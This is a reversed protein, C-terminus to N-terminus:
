KALWTVLPLYAQRQQTTAADRVLRVFNASRQADGQPGLGYATGGSCASGIISRGSATKPDSRQAGAGHVDYLTYCSAGPTAKQWGGARGFALYVAAAGAGNSAAHTTSTWYWPWDPQGGENTIATATFLPDIAASASTEPSRTYDLISQLEKVDPLRWDNHGLTNAANQAQVWALATEWNMAAGSDAQSWMLGTAEDTITGDGNAAFQNAGYSPNGRVCLVFFTKDAGNLKLGYGKIRGDAFNVGFLKQEQATSVYLTSSAYQADIIREGASTDGYAFDFTSRDIFPTLGATSSGSLGSPDVGRFDILSYLQKITPLQWDSYGALTLEQCYALAQTYTLKDAADINGDGDTNPSRQWTLGTNLDSVTGNGNNTYAPANGTRQADQGYFASGAPPCAVPSSANYCQVQAPDVVAYTTNAAARGTPTQNALHNWGATLTFVLLFVALRLTWQIPIPQPHM